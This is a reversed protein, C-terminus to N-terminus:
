IRLEAITVGTEGEGFTGLRFSKVHRNTKLSDQVAKRLVGTGKGHIIRVSPLKALFANDIYRELTDIAEEAMMGRLDVEPAIKVNRLEITKKKIFDQVTKDGSNEVLKLERLKVSVKMIGAQIQLSGNKDPLTLVTGRAGLNILEVTDGVKLPRAPKEAVKAKKKNMGHLKDEAENLSKRLAARAENEQKYNDDKIKKKRLESLEDFVQDATARADKILREAEAKAKQLATDRDHEIKADFEEARRYIESAERRLRAAEARDRELACRKEELSEIIEEFRKDESDLLTSAKDIIYEPLGLSKSIAFANSKGPVGILLKYTPRLTAVDFECSANEVHETTLAYSKLETYHTSAAIKAGLARAYEIISVALAAGEVPDTGAGLEDFLILSSSDAEKLIAVINVMHSSFTSLSQEISQEDGIDAFIKDYVAVQSGDSVPIHLGCQTMITLLGLTKLSVTKGGTNPGTIILTDFDLGLRIDVPVTKKKDLLPHRAHKLLTEGKDNVDPADGNMEFSLKAKAFIFDLRTLIKYNESLAEGYDSVSASLEALIREIEDKEKGELERLDNNLNVVAMPEIFLTAGSASVDHTIGPILTKHEAKVPVVYRGGRQTIIAEQLLKSQTPSSIIKSLSDRIKANKERMKRRIDALTASARDSVEDESIIATNIADELYKNPVLSFFFPDLSLKGEEGRWNVVGRVCKLLSAIALLEKCSLVGGRSARFVSSEPNRIGAFSPAGRTSILNKACDTEGLATKIDEIHTFPVLNRALSKAEEGTAQAALLELVAPLELTKISKLTLDTM